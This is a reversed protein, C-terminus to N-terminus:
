WAGNVGGDNAHRWRGARPRQWGLGAKEVHM